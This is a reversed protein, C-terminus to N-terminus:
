RITTFGGSHDPITRLGFDGLAHEPRNQDQSWGPGNQHCIQTIWTHTHLGRDGGGVVRVRVRWINAFRASFVLFFLSFLCVAVFPPVRRTGLLANLSPGVLRRWFLYSRMFRITIKRRADVWGQQLWGKPSVQFIQLSQILIQWEGCYVCACNAIAIMKALACLCDLKNSCARM